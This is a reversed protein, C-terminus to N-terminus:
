HRTTHLNGDFSQGGRVCWTLYSISKDGSTTKGNIFEVRWADTASSAATTGTWYVDNQVNQFPHGTPLTPNNNSTDVLTLLQERIPIHWGKRGGHNVNACIAEATIWPRTMDSPSQEWVLGTENDRVALGNLVCTIRSSKCADPGDDAPLIKDWAPPMGSHDAIASLADHQSTMKSHHPFQAIGDTPILFVGGAVALFLAVFHSIIHRM